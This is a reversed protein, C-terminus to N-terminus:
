TSFVVGFCTVLLMQMWIGGYGKLFNAAFSADRARLYADANSMGFYQSREACRILVEIQGNHVLDEFLDIDRVSGDPNSAQLKRPFHRLDAEFEKSEFFHKTS